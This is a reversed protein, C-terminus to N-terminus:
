LFTAQGSMEKRELQERRAEYDKLYKDYIQYFEDVAEQSIGTRDAVEQVSPCHDMDVMYPMQCTGGMYDPVNELGIIDDINNKTLYIESIKSSAFTKM